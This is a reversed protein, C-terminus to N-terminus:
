LSSSYHPIILITWSLYVEWEGIRLIKEADAVCFKTTLESISNFNVESLQAINQSNKQLSATETDDLHSDICIPIYLQLNSKKM